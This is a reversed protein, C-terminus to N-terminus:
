YAESRHRCRQRAQRPVVSSWGSAGAHAAARRRCLRGCSSRRLDFVSGQPMFLTQRKYVDLHTYSVPIMDEVISKIPAFGTGTAILVIPKAASERLFFEGFPLEVELKNGFSLSALVDESFRGGPVHRIHLTVGDNEHPPNAMSFNRSDGDPMM